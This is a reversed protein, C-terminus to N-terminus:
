SGKKRVKKAAPPVIKESSGQGQAEAPEPEAPPGVKRFHNADIGDKFTFGDKKMGLLKKSRDDKLAAVVLTGSECTEHPTIQEVVFILGICVKYFDTMVEDGIMIISSDRLKAIV